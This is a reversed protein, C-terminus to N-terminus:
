RRGRLKAIVSAVDIRHLDRDVRIPTESVREDHEIEQRMARRRATMQQGPSLYTGARRVLERQSPTLQKRDRAIIGLIPQIIRQRKVSSNRGDNTHRLGLDNLATEGRTLPSFCAALGSDRRAQEMVTTMSTPHGRRRMESRARPPHPHRKHDM